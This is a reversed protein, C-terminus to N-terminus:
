YVRIPFYRDVLEKFRGNRMIRRLSQNLQAKLSRDSKRVAIAIGDGFYKPEFFAGDVMRCCRKSLSGNTWFALGIGDGFIADVKKDILAKRALEPTEFRSVPTNRFFNALYAEHASGRVIGTRVGDFDYPTSKIPRMDRRVVFRAPTFFYRDTFDVIKLAKSTVRHAAIVADANGQAVSNLLTKWDRSQIDCTVSLDLCIARALDINLGTLIGDEDHSNFPPYDDTTLFRIIARSEPAIADASEDRTQAQVTSIDSVSIALVMLLLCAPAVAALRIAKTKQAMPSSRKWSSRELTKREYSLGHRHSLMPQDRLARRLVLEHAAVQNGM